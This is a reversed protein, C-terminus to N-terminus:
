LRGGFGARLKPLGILPATGTTVADSLNLSGPIGPFATVLRAAAVGGSPDQALAACDFPTGAVEARCPGDSTQLEGCTAGVGIRADPINDAHLVEARATGTTFTLTGTTVVEQPDDDTCPIGDAGKAAICQGGEGCNEPYGTCRAGPNNGGRCVSTETETACTGSGPFEEVAINLRMVAAGHPAPGGVKDGDASRRV